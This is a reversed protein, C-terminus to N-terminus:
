VHTLPLKMKIKSEICDCFDTGMYKCYHCYSNCSFQLYRCHFRKKREYQKAISKPVLRWRTCCCAIYEMNTLNLSHLYYQYNSNKVMKKKKKFLKEFHNILQNRIDILVLHNENYRDQSVNQAFFTNQQSYYFTHWIYEQDITLKCEKEMDGM